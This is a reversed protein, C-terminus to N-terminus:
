FVSMRRIMTEKLIPNILRRVFKERRSRWDCGCLSEGGDLGWRVSKDYINVLGDNM